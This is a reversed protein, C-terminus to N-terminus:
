TPEVTQGLRRRAVRDISRRLEPDADLLRHFDAASLVLLQCYSLAVVDANRPRHTLLAIEGFFEGSGVGIPRGPLRVEVAGSDLFYMADGREGITIIREGPTALRTTLLRAIEALRRKELGAFLPVRAIMDEPKMAIDLPPRRDLSRWRAAVGRDLDNFIEQSVVSEALLGRYSDEELRTAVRGLYRKQLAAYYEPYQLRLADLAQEVASTRAALVAGVTEGTANGLLPTLRRTNFIALDRLVIRDVLLIEFRDALADALPGGIGFRRHLIQALRFTVTFALAAAAAAEYGGQGGTKVGDLLRGAQAMLVHAVKRAILREKFRELALEHERAALTALGIYVRDDESLAAAPAAADLNRTRRELDQTVAALAPADIHDAKAIAEIRERISARALSLTRDRVAREAPSLLDLGLAHILPRLSMGQVFLTLLVYGTTLVVVFHSIEASLGRHESIALALALSVAGRLGGWLIVLKYPGSVRNGISLFGLAPLVGWLVLARAALTALVLVGLLLADDAGIDTLLRPVLMAALIFVLSNAWFALQQWTQILSDWTSPTIRTRGVSGIVLAAIVVTVVGSVGLYRDAIVYVTYALAVTLTIEALRMGRLAGFLACAIHGAVYGAAAGGFFSIAFDASIDMLGGERVGSLLGLLVAFLAIAAADNFLSEGEVLIALRRPAGLDRFIGIVAAPDTSAVIAGLLLCAVLGVPAFFSLAVGVVATCVFVAVVAMLLVPAIDDMLRRVDIALGAEFLLVPLFVYLFVEASIDLNRLAQIFDGAIGMGTADRTAAAVAGLICGVIALLVTYPLNLRNALPPLFSVLVLLGALGFVTIAIDQM